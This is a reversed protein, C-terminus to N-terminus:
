FSFNAALQLQTSGTAITVGDFDGQRSLMNLQAGVGLSGFSYLAGGGLMTGIGSDKHNDAGNNMSFDSYMMAIGGVGFVQLTDMLDFTYRYAVYLGSTKLKSSWSKNYADFDLKSQTTNYGFRFKLWDKDLDWDFFVEMPIGDATYDADEASQTLGLGLGVAMKGNRTQASLTGAYIVLVIFCFGSTMLRNLSGKRKFTRHQVM